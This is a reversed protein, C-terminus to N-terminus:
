FDNMKPNLSALAQNENLSHEACTNDFLVNAQTSQAVQRLAQLIVQQQQKQKQQQRILGSLIKCLM